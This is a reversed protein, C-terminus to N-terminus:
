AESRATSFVPAGSAKTDSLMMAGASGVNLYAEEGHQTIDLGEDEDTATARLPMVLGILKLLVFSMVGSYVIAALVAAGQIALQGPNGYLAGDAVGNLAKEAFVGTLLAGVTGGVGHAAVVDLSDDLSTKARIILGFYSPVAAIAGLFIANMPSIFGAAPTIAVLGVVIATAAGVATPKGSRMVDLITWVLLTAAPAMMTAVFALGAIPSAALASGANFGFWGFWLLGAGLLVFPVNHPVIASSGYDKRRGLVMAAVLAAVAANVHVVTGGAFDLAGWKALWGGGWVWHAIPSYVVIAWLSIFVVYASFRMREVIAGSILAATIIAFTGQYSMFLAAPITGKAQLGVGKLLANSLDGVWDNGTSFALSYGVVAWLVGVFGLSIFSMMMTNLANKSRVLGGYFFALAPTMLLVLATSVLMWATDAQNM